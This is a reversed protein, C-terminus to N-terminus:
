VSAPITYQYNEPVVVVTMATGDGKWEWLGDFVDRPLYKIFYESSDVISVGQQDGGTVVLFHGGAFYHYYGYDRRFNVIVPIGLTNTLYLMQNYTMHWSIDARMHEKAAAAVFGEQYLLGDTPSLSSGLDDIMRGITAHPVGWATEVEALVSPSCAAGSYLDFQARNDYQEPHLLSTLPRVEQTVIRLPKASVRAEFTQYPQSPEGAAPITTGLALVLAVAALVIRAIWWPDGARRVIARTDVRPRRGLAGAPQHVALARASASGADAGEEDGWGQEDSWTDTMEWDDDGAPEEGSWPNYQGPM